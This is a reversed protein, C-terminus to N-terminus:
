KRKVLIRMFVCFYVYSQNSTTKRNKLKIHRKAKFTADNFLQFTAHNKLATHAQFKRLAKTKSKIEICKKSKKTTM